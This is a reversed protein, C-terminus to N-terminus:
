IPPRPKVLVTLQFDSYREGLRLSPLPPFYLIQHEAMRAERDNRRQSLDQISIAPM